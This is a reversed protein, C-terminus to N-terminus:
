SGGESRAGAAGKAAALRAPDLDAVFVKHLMHWDQPHARKGAESLRAVQQMMVATKQKSDGEAPAPIEQHIHVGWGDGEFWLIAPMLAREIVATVSGAGKAIIWACALDWNGMHLLAFVVERSAALSEFATETHGSDRMGGALRGTPMVPLRFAELWYRAYSRM